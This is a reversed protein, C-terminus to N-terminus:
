RAWKGFSVLREATRSLTRTAMLEAGARWGELTEVTVLFNGAQEGLVPSIMRQELHLIQIAFVADSAVEFMIPHIKRDNMPFRGYLLEIVAEGTIQELSLVGANSAFLAM